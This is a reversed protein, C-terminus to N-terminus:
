PSEFERRLFPPVGIWLCSDSLILASAVCLREPM